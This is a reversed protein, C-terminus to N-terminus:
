LVSTPVQSSRRRGDMFLPTRNINSLSASSMPTPIPLNSLIISPVPSLPPLVPLEVAEEDDIDPIVQSASNRVIPGNNLNRGRGFKLYLYICVVLKQLFSLTLVLKNTM